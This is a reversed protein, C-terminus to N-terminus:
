DKVKGDKDGRRLTSFRVDFFLCVSPQTVVSSFTSGVSPTPVGTDQETTEGPCGFMGILPLFSLPVSFIVEDM